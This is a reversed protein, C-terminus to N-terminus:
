KTILLPSNINYNYLTAKDGSVLFVFQENATGETFETNYHLTVTTGAPTANV